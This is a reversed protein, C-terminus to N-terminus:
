PKEAQTDLCLAVEKERRIELGRLKKGKAYVWKHMEPCWESAPAGANLKSVLTSGCAAGAGINYGWSLIAAAENDKLPVKICPSIAAAHKQLSAGLLAYCEERSFREQMTIQKDTEGFCVTPVGVPDIYTKPVFGEFYAVIPLAMILAGLGIGAGRGIPTSNNQSM